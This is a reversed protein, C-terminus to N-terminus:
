SRGREWGKPGWPDWAPGAAGWDGLEVTWELRPRSGVPGGCLSPCAHVCVQAETQHRSPGAQPGLLQERWGPRGIVAPPGWVLM